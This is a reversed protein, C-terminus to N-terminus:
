DFLKINNNYFNPCVIINKNKFGFYKEINNWFSKQNQLSENLDLTNNIFKHFNEVSQNIELEDNDILGYGLDNMKPIVHIQNLKKKFAEEFSVLNGTKLNIYKKPIIMVKLFHHELSAIDFFDIILRPKRFLVAVENIGTNSSIMFDSKSILYLDLFDSRDPSAAYDIINPDNFNLKKKENKGLRIAKYNKSTMSKLGLIINNINSNRSTEFKENKYDASRLAFTFFKKNELGARKLFSNGKNKEFSNFKISPGFKLLVNKNDIRKLKDKLTRKVSESEEDYNCIFFSFIKFSNFFFYIPELINRPLILMKESWKKELFKNSVLKGVFWVVTTQQPNLKKELIYIEIASCMEGISHSPIKNIKFKKFIRIILFLLIVPILFFIKIYLLWYNM